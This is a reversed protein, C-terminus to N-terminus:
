GRIKWWIMNLVIKIGDIITTGKYKDSYITRVPVQSYILRKKGVRAIMESEMSYDRSRWRIKDYIKTNFARFGCQTDFLKIKYLAFTLRNIFWNGFKLIAPMSKKQIRYGFVIDSHKIKNILKPIDKPEHQGDADLLVVKDAGQSIAYEVGTKIAAGKGLNVIHKLVTAGANKSKKATSDTSGDDVLVIKNVYQLTEKIVDSINKEEDKAAIVAYISNKM